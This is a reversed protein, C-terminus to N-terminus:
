RGEPMEPPAIGVYCMWEQELSMTRTEPSAIRENGGLTLIGAEWSKMQVNHLFEAPGGGSPWFKAMKEKAHVGSVFDRVVVHGLRPVNYRDNLERKSIPSGRKFTKLVYVEPIDINSDM